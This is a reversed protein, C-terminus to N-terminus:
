IDIDSSDNFSLSKETVEQIINKTAAPKSSLIGM